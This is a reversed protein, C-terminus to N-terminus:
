RVRVEEIQNHEFIELDIIKIAVVRKNPAHIARFVTATAGVGICEDIQYDTRSCSFSLSSSSSYTTQGTAGTPTSPLIQRQVQLHNNNSGNSNNATNPASFSSTSNGLSTSGGSGVFKRWTNTVSNTPIAQSKAHQLQTQQPQQQQQPLQQQSHSQSNSLSSRPQSQSQFLSASPSSPRSTSPSKQQYTTLDDVYDIGAGNNTNLNTTSTVILLPQTQAQKQSKQQPLQAHSKIEPELSRQHTPSSETDKSGASVSTAM